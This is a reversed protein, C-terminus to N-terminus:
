MGSQLELELAESVTVCVYLCVFCWHVYFLFYIVYKKFLFFSFPM